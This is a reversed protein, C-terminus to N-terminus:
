HKLSRHNLRNILRALQKKSQEKLHSIRYVQSKTYLNQKSGMCTPCGTLHMSAMSLCSVALAYIISIKM